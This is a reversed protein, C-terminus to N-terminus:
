GVLKWAKDKHFQATETLEQFFTDIFSVFENRQVKIESFLAKELEYGGATHSINGSIGKILKQLEKTTTNKFSETGKVWKDHTKCSTFGAEIPGIDGSSDGYLIQPREYDMSASLNNEATTTHIRESSYLSDARETGSLCKPKMCVLVSFIDWFMGISPVHHKEIWIGVDIESTFIYEGQNVSCSDGSM